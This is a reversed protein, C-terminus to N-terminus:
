SRDLANDTYMGHRLVLPRSSDRDEFCSLGHKRPVTLLHWDADAWRGHDLRRDFVDPVQHGARLPEIAPGVRRQHAGIRGPTRPGTLPKAEHGRSEPPGEPDVDAHELHVRLSPAQVEQGVEGEPEDVVLGDRHGRYTLAPGHNAETSLEVQRRSPTAPEESGYERALQM